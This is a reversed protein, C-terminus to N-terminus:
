TAVVACTDVLVCATDRADTVPLVLVVEKAAEVIFTTLSKGVAIAADQLVKKDGASIRILIPAEKTM